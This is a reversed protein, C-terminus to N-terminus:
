FTWGLSLTYLNDNKGKGSVPTNDWDWIWGAQALMSATMKYTANTVMRGNQDDADDLSFLLFANNSFALKESYEYKVDYGVRGSLYSDDDASDTYSEDVQSLGAEVSASYGEKEVVTHGIGAGVTWGLDLNNEFKSDITALGYYYTKENMAVDYKTELHTNRQTIAGGSQRFNWFLGVNWKDGNEFKKDMSLDAYAGKESSNGDTASMSVTAKGKWANLKPAPAADDQAIPITTLALVEVTQIQDPQPTVAGVATLIASLLIM